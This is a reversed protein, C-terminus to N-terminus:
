SAFFTSLTQMPKVCSYCFPNCIQRSVNQSKCFEYVYEVELSNINMIELTRFVKKRFGMSSVQKSFHQSFVIKLNELLPCILTVDVVSLTNVIAEFVNISQAVCSCSGRIKLSNVMQHCDVHVQEDSSALGDAITLRYSDGDNARTSTEIKVIPFAITPVFKIAAKSGLYERKRLLAALIGHVRLVVAGLLKGVVHPIRPAGFCLAEVQGGICIRAELCQFWSALEHVCTRSSQPVM